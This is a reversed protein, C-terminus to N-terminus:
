WYRCLLVVRMALEQDVEDYFMGLQAKAVEPFLCSEKQSGLTSIQIKTQTLKMSGMCM